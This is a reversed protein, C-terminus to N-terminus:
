QPSPGKTSRDRSIDDSIVLLEALIIDTAVFAYATRTMAAWADRLQDLARLAPPFGRSGVRALGAMLLSMQPLRQWPRHIHTEPRAAIADALKPYGSNRIMDVATTISEDTYTTADLLSWHGRALFLELVSTVRTGEDLIGEPVIGGAELMAKVREKPLADMRLSDTFRGVSVHPDSGGHLIEIVPNGCRAVMADIPAERHSAALSAIAPYLPWLNRADASSLPVVKEILGLRIVLRLAGAPDVQVQQLAQVAELWRGRFVLAIDDKLNTRIGASRLAYRLDWLEWLYPLADEHHPIPAEGALYSIVWEEASDRPVPMGPQDIPLGEGRWRDWTVPVWPDEIRIVARLPGAARLEPPSPAKGQEDFRVIVPERWPAFVFYMGAVVHAIGAFERLVLHEDEISIGSTLQKPRFRVLTTQEDGFDWGLDGSKHARVTDSLRSLEYRHLGLPGGRHSVLSQTMGGSTKLHLPPLVKHAPMRVELTGFPETGDTALTLPRSSWETSGEPHAHCIELHLPEVETLLAGRPGAITAQSTLDSANFHIASPERRLGSTSDLRVSMPTLGGAVFSRCEVSPVLRLGECLSVQWLSRTGLPGRARIEFSGVVPGEWGDFPDIVAIDSDDEPSVEPITWVDSALISGGRSDRIDITWDRDTTSMPIDIKPRAAHIPHGEATRIGKLQEELILKARASKRVERTIGRATFARANSLDVQVLNWGNWGVPGIAEAVVHGRGRFEIESAEDTGPLLVWVVGAPLPIGTPIYTGGEDFVVVPAHAAVLDIDYRHESTGLSVGISRVPKDVVMETPSDSSGGGTPQSNVRRAQADLSVNWWVRGDVRVTPLRLVVSWRDLDLLIHPLTTASSSRDVGTVPQLELDSSNLGAIASAAFRRPVGSGAMLTDIQREGRRLLDLLDLLRDILDIAYDGGNILFDRVPRDLRELYATGPGNAWSVLSSGDIGPSVEQRAALLGLLDPVCYDPICAHLAMAAVFRFHSEAPRAKRLRDLADIFSHGLQSELTQSRREGIVEFLGDWLAGGKYVRQACLSMSVVVCAPYRRLASSDRHQIRVLARLIEAADAREVELEGALTVGDLELTWEREFKRLAELPTYVPRIDMM